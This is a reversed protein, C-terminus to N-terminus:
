RAYWFLGAKYINSKEGVLAKDAKAYIGFLSHAGKHLTFKAKASLGLALEYHYDTDYKLEDSDQAEIISNLSLNPGIYFTFRDGLDFPVLVSVMASHDVSRVRVDSAYVHVYRCQGISSNPSVCPACDNHCDNTSNVPKEIIGLDNNFVSDDFSFGHLFDINVEAAKIINKLPTNKFTDISSGFVLTLGYGTSDIGKADGTDPLALSRMMTIDIGVYSSSNQHNQNSQNPGENNNTPPPVMAEDSFTQNDFPNAPSTAQAYALQNILILGMFVVANKTLSM